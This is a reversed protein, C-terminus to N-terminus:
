SVTAIWSYVIFKNCPTVPVSCSSAVCRWWQRAVLPLGPDERVPLLLVFLVQPDLLVHPCSLRKAWVEVVGHVKLASQRDNWHAWTM